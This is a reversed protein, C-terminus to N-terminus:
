MMLYNLLVHVNSVPNTMAAPLGPLVGPMGSRPGLPGVVPGPMVAQQQQQKAKLMNVNNIMVRITEM